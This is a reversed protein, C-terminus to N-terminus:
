TVIFVFHFTVTKDDYEISFIISKNQYALDFVRSRSDGRADLSRGVVRSSTTPCCCMMPFFVKNYLAMLASLSVETM